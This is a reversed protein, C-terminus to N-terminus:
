GNKTALSALDHCVKFEKLRRVHIIFTALQDKIAKRDDLSFDDL